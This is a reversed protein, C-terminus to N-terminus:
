HPAVVEFQSSCLSFMTYEDTSSDKYRVIAHIPDAYVSQKNHRQAYAAALEHDTLDAWEPYEQRLYAIEMSAM